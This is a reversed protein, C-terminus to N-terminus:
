RTYNFVVVSTFRSPAGDKVLPTFKWQKVAALSSQTFLANGKIVKADVVDGSESVVVQVEQMGQINLQKAAVPYAPAVKKTVRAMANATEVSTPEQALATLGLLLVLVVLHTWNSPRFM